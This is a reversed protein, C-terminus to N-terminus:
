CKCCAALMLALLSRIALKKYLASIENKRQDCMATNGATRNPGVTVSGNPIAELRPCVTFLFYHNRAHM